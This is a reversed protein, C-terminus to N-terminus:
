FCKFPKAVSTTLDPFLNFGCSMHHKRLFWSVRKLKLHPIASFYSPVLVLFYPIFESFKLTTINHFINCITVIYRYITVHIAFIVNYSHKIGFPFSVAVVVAVAVAVVVVVVVVAVVVVVLVLVVVAVVIVVVVVVVILIRLTLTVSISLLIGPIVLRAVM